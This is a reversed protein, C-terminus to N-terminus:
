HVSRHFYDNITREVDEIDLEGNVVGQELDNLLVEPDSTEAAPIWHLDDHVVRARRSM